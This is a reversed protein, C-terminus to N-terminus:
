CEDGNVEIRRWNNHVKETDTPDLKDFDKNIYHSIFYTNRHKQSLWCYGRVPKRKFANFTKTGSQGKVNPLAAESPFNEQSLKGKDALRQIQQIMARKFKKKKQANVSDLAKDFSKIANKCHVIRYSDGTFEDKLDDSSDKDIKSM